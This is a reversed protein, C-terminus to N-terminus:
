DKEFQIHIFSTESLAASEHSTSQWFERSMNMHAHLFRVEDQVSPRVAVWYSMCITSGEVTVM